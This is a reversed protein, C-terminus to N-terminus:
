GNWSCRSLWLHPQFYKLCPHFYSYSYPLVLGMIYVNLITAPMVLMLANRYAGVSIALSKMFVSLFVMSVIITLAGIYPIVMLTKMSSAKEREVHESMEAFWAMSEITEPSGGGVEIADTLIFLFVRARWARIRSSLISYIKSLSFGLSLRMAMDKLYKSFIGYDRSALVIISKEPSLGTKRIEVLDRLFATIGKSLGRNERSVFIEYIASPITPITLALGLAISSYYAPDIGLAEGFASITIVFPEFVKYIVTEKPLYFPLFMEITLIIILPLTIGFFVIYPRIETYPEKYQVVDAIYMVMGSVFPLFIYSFLFLTAGSFASVSIEPISTNILYIADMALMVFIIIALYAELITAMRDGAVRMKSVLDMFLGQVKRRLYDYLDGGVRITAAYGLLLDKFMDSPSRKALDDFATIPDKGLAKVVIIFSIRKFVTKAMSLREFAKHPSLGGTTMITLYAVAYPVEQDMSAGRSAAIARPFIQGFFVLMLPPLMVLAVVLAITLQTVIPTFLIILIFSVISIITSIIFLFGVFSAYAEYYIRINANRVLSPINPFVALVMKGLFGFKSYVFDWFRDIFKLKVEEEGREVPKSKKLKLKVM